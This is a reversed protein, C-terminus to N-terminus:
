AWCASDLCAMKGDCTESKTGENRLPEDDTIMPLIVHEVNCARTGM